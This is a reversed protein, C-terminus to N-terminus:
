SKFFYPVCRRTQINHPLQGGSFPIRRGGSFFVCFRLITNNTSEKCNGGQSKHCKAPLLKGIRLAIQVIHKQFDFLMPNLESQEIGFGTAIHNREKQQLFEQYTM